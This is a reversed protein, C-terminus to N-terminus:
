HRRGGRRRPTLTAVSRILPFARRETRPRGTVRTRPPTPAREAVGELRFRDIAFPVSRSFFNPREQIGFHLHPGQTNGSNGLRGLRQGARVRQGRRVRVSGTQLHGYVAYRRRGIRIIANNGAWDAPKRLGPNAEFPPIDPLGDVTSVVTGDAVSYIAAGFGAWDSNQRGDGTYLAGRVLRVWDIAFVEANVLAGDFALITFRHNATPDDCCGNGDLWGSGRLPASIVVPRRRDVRLVPAGVTTSGIISRARADAPISYRIRHTLRRPAARGSSRPLVVDVLIVSTSAASISATPEEAFLPRTVAALAAGRLRLLRRGAGRVELSELTADASFANTVALDYEVHKRGDTGRVWQPAHLAEVDLATTSAAGAPAAAVLSVVVFLM